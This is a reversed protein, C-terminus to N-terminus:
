RYAMKTLAHLGWTFPSHLSLRLFPTLHLWHLVISSSSFFVRQTVGDEEISTIFGSANDFLLIRSESLSTDLWALFQLLAETHMLQISRQTDFKKKVIVWNEGPLTSFGKGYLFPLTRYSGDASYAVFANVQDRYSPNSLPQNFCFPRYPACRWLLSFSNLYLISSASPYPLSEVTNKEDNVTQNKWLAPSNELRNEELVSVVRQLPLTISNMNLEGMCLAHICEKSIRLGLNQSIHLSQLVCENLILNNNNTKSSGRVTKWKRWYNIIDAVTSPRISLGWKQSYYTAIVHYSYHNEEWYKVIELKQSSTLKEYKQKSM